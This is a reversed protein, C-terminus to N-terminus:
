YLWEHYNGTDLQEEEPEETTTTTTTTTTTPDLYSVIKILKMLYPPFINKFINQTINLINEWVTVDLM